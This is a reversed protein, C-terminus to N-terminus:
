KCISSLLCNPERYLAFSILESARLPRARNRGYQGSPPTTGGRRQARRAVRIIAVSRSTWFARIPLTRLLSQAASRRAAYMLTWV